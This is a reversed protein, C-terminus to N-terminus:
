NPQTTGPESVILRIRYMASGGEDDNFSIILTYDNGALPQQTIQVQGRAEIPVLRVHVEKSPLPPALGKFESSVARQKSQDSPQPGQANNTLPHGDLDFWDPLWKVHYAKSAAGPEKTSIVTPENRGKHWGVISWDEHHWQITNGHIVLNDKGDILAEIEIALTNEAVAITDIEPKSAPSKEDPRKKGEAWTCSLCRGKGDISWHALEPGEPSGWPSKPPVFFSLEEANRWAPISQLGPEKGQIDKVLGEVQGTALNLVSVEGKAGAVAVRTEDPNIEFFGLGLGDPL